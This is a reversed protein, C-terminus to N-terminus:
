NEGFHIAAQASTQGVHQVKTSKRQGDEDWSEMIVVIWDQGQNYWAQTTKLGNTKVTQVSTQHCLSTLPWGFDPISLLLDSAQEYIQLKDLVTM